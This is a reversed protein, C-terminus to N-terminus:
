KKDKSYIEKSKGTIDDQAESEHGEKVLLTDVKHVNGSYLFDRFNIPKYGKFWKKDIELYKFQKPPKAGKELFIILDVDSGTQGRWTEEYVGFSGNVISGWLVASKIEPIDKLYPLLFNKCKEFVEEQDEYARKNPKEKM